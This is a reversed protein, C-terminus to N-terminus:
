VLSAILPIEIVSPETATIEFSVSTEGVSATITTTGPGVITVVGFQDVTAVDNDSSHWTVEEPDAGEITLEIVEGPETNNAGPPAVIQLEIEAVTADTAADDDAAGADAPQNSYIVVEIPDREEDTASWPGCTPVRPTKT